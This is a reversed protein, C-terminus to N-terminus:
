VVVVVQEFLLWFVDDPVLLAVEELEEMVRVVLEIMEKVGEHLGAVKLIGALGHVAVVIVIGYLVTVMVFTSM